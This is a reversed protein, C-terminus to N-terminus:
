GVTVVVTASVAVAFVPSGFYVLRYSTTASPTRTFTVQGATIIGAGAQAPVWNGLSNRVQLEVARGNLAVTGAKLTGTLTVKAGKAVPATASSTLTITTAVKNVKVTKVASVAAGYQWNGDYVLAYYDTGVPPTTTIAVVGAASTLAHGAERILHKRSDVVFLEVQRGGLKTTGSALTGTFTETAGVTVPTTPASISLTTPLVVVQVVTRGSHSAVLGRAGNFVLEYTATATPAFVFAAEGTKADTTTNKFPHLVGRADVTDLWVLERGLATTGQKLDGSITVKSGAKVLAASRAISLSTPKTVGASAAGAASLAAAAVAAAVVTTGVAAWTLSKRM